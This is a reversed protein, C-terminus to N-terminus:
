ERRLAGRSRDRGMGFPSRGSGPGGTPTSTGSTTSWSSRRRRSARDAISLLVPLAHLDELQVYYSGNVAVLGFFVFVFVEGLGEYGYPKPGGTYLVGAAISLIGIAM